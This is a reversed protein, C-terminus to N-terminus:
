WRRSPSTNTTVTIWLRRWGLGDRLAVGILAESPAERLELRPQIFFEGLVVLGDGGDERRDAREHVRRM